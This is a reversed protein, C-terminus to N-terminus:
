VCHAVRASAAPGVTSSGTLVEGLVQVAAAAARSVVSSAWSRPCPSLLAGDIYRQTTAESIKVGRCQLAAAVEAATLRGDGDLDYEDFL